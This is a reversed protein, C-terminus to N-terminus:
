NSCGRGGKFFAIGGVDENKIGVANFFIGGVGMRVLKGISHDVNKNVTEMGQFFTFM